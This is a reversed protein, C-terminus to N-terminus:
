ALNESAQLPAGIVGQAADHRHDGGGGDLQAGRIELLENFSVAQTAKATWEEADEFGLDILVNDIGKHVRKCEMAVERWARLPRASGEVCCAKGTSKEYGADWMPGHLNRCNAEIQGLAQAAPAHGIMVVLAVM